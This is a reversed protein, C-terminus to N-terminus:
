REASRRSRASRASSSTSSTARASSCSPPPRPASGRPARCGTRRTAACPSSTRAGAAPEIGYREVVGEPGVEEPGEGGKRQMLVSVSDSACQFMDRDGTLILSRGGAATEVECLSHLLDDAELDDTAM